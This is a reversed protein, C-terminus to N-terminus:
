AARERVVAGIDIRGVTRLAPIMSLGAVVLMAVASLVVSLPRMAFELSFAEVSFQSMFFVGALYGIILGPVIGIVTLLVNETAVLRAIEAHSLGNARMTAFEGVREAVNVSITNFMLAFAMAGGLLLMLGIFAYFFGLFSQVLDYLARADVVIGVVDLGEIAEIVKSRDVDPEFDAKVTTVAASALTEEGVLGALQASDMYLYIGIPEDLFGELTTDFEQDLSTLHVHVTDGVEVDLRDALGKGALIGERPLPMSFGHVRSDHEYGNLSTAYSANGSTVTAPLTSVREATLVGDVDAIEQVSADDVPGTLIVDADEVAVENFQRDLMVVVSDIMGWSVMVVILALVVGLVTSLSRRKNRGIGRLVMLWRVPLRRLPPVVTEALSRRGPEAPADGRMAEAPSIAVARRAPAWAGLAGAVLGFLIGVVPTIWHFSRVTDPIGLSKTYIGTIGFGALVGLATGALGSTLGLRTGYSLYHGLILRRNMGSARLTGIMSRQIFVIRTLLIFAALGAAGMFLLPFLVSMSQFGNVDLLLTSNSPHDARTIVDAAGVDSAAQRVMADVAEVDAGDRYTILVDTRTLADPANAVLEDTAFFVGFTGPPPFIDQSDRAPWIYEASVGVGVVHTEAWSGAVQVEVTDGVALDFTDATHAEVVIGNADDPTLYSGDTVDIKDVAPQHDAPFALLRGEFTSSGVRMPIDAQTRAHASEVGDIAAATDAFAPDVGLVTIDAFDLRDYTYNYSASLNRYSDYTSAFLFSGLAITIAVAIFQTRQRRIDRSRKVELLSV